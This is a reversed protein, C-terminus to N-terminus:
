PKGDYEGGVIDQYIFAAIIEGATKPAIKGPIGPLLLTNVGKNKANEHDIGYPNSAVDIILLDHNTIKGIMVSDIIRYPITNIIFDFQNIKNIIFQNSIVNFDNIKAHLIDKEHRCSITINAKLSKFINGIIQGLRGYGIILIRSNYIALESKNVITEIIGETTIYNNKIAIDDTLYTKLQINNRVCKNKFEETMLGTYISKGKLINLYNDTLHIETGDILNDQNIGRIPLILHDCKEIGYFLQLEDLVVATDIRGELYQQIYEMRKDKNKVILVKSM